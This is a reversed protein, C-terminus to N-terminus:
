KKFGNFVGKVGSLLNRPRQIELVITIASLFVASILSFGFGYFKLNFKIAARNRYYFYFPSKGGASGSGQHYVISDSAVNLRYGKTFSRYQWDLEESYMFYSEDMYGVEHILKRPFIMSCGMIYDPNKKLTIVKELDLGKGLLRCKGLIPYFAGGGYCEVIGSGDQLIVSGVFQKDDGVEFKRLLPTLADNSVRADNNVIWYYDSDFFQESFKLGYNNGGAYGSNVDNEIVYVRNQIIHPQLRKSIMGASDDNSNNDIVVVRSLPICFQLLSEVCRVTDLPSRWNLVVATIDLNQCNSKM